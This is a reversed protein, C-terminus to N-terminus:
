RNRLRVLEDLFSNLDARVLPKALPRDGLSSTLKRAGAFAVLNDPLAEAAIDLLATLGANGPNDIAPVPCWIPRGQECAFRATHMTGGRLGSQGIFVALSLGSQIRNRAVLTRASPAVGCAVEAILTGGADLIEEALGRNESPTPKDVGGGLVAITILGEKLAAKHAASDIGKALGSVVGFSENAITEVVAEVASIGFQTPKRTGVIALHPYSLVGIPGRVRLVLPPSSIEELLAPYGQDYYGLHTVGLEQERELTEQAKTLASTYGPPEENREVLARAKVSGIGPLSQLALLSVIEQM